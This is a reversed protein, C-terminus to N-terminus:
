VTTHENSQTSCWVLYVRLDFELQHYNPLMYQCLKYFAKNHDAERLHALEHVIIMDLFDRPATKFLSAIRIEKKVKLKSGQVRAISTHMGLAHRVVDIKSDYGVKSIRPANRLYAQKFQSVLDYLGKDTLITNNQPYRKALYEGLQGSSLLANVQTILSAPYGQIYKLHQNFM